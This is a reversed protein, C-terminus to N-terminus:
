YLVGVVVGDSLVATQQLLVFPTVNHLGEVHNSFAHMVFHM